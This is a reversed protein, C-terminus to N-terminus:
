SVQASRGPHTLNPNFLHLASNTHSPINTVSHMSKKSISQVNWTQSHYVCSLIIIRSPHVPYVVYMSTTIARILKNFDLILETCPRQFDSALFQYQPISLNSPIKHVDPVATQTYLNLDLMCNEDFLHFFEFTTRLWIAMAYLIKIIEICSFNTSM